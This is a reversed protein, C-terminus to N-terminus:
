FHCGENSSSLCERDRAKRVLCMGKAPKNGDLDPRSFGFKSYSALEFLNRASSLRRSAVFCSKTSRKVKSFFIASFRNYM